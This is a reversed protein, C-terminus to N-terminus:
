PAAMSITYALDLAAGGPTERSNTLAIAPALGADILVANLESGAAQIKSVAAVDGTRIHAAITSSLLKTDVRNGEPVSAQEFSITGIVHPQGADVTVDVTLEEPPVPPWAVVVTARVYGAESYADFLAPAVADFVACAPGSPGARTVVAQLGVEPLGLTGSFRAGVIEVDRDYPNAPITVEPDHVTIEARIRLCNMFRQRHRAQADATMAASSAIASHMRLVKVEIIQAGLEERYQAWSMTTTEAVASQLQEVSMANSKAIGEAARDIESEHVELELREAEEAFMIRDILQFLGDERSMTANASLHRELQEPTINTSGVTAVAEVVAAPRGVVALGLEPDETRSQPGPHEVAEAPKCSTLAFAAIVVMPRLLM